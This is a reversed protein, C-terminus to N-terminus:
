NSKSVYKLDNRHFYGTSVGYRGRPGPQTWRVQYELKQNASSSYSRYHPNDRVEIVLGILYKNNWRHMQETNLCYRSLTVLDGAKM